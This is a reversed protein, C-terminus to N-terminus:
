IHNAEQIMEDIVRYVSPLNEERFEILDSKIDYCLVSGNQWGLVINRGNDIWEGVTIGSCNPVTFM